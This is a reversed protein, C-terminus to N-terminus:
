RDSDRCRRSWEAPRDPVRITRSLAARSVDCSPCAGRGIAPRHRTTAPVWAGSNSVKIHLTRNEMGAQVLDPPRKARNAVMNSPMKSWRSCSSERCRCSELIRMSPSQISLNGGFRAEEVDAYRALAEAEQASLSSSTKVIQWLM